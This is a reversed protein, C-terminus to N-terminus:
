SGGNEVSSRGPRRANRSACRTCGEGGVPACYTAEAKECRAWGLAATAAHGRDIARSSAM